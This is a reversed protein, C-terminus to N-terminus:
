AGEGTTGAKHAHITIIEFYPARRERCTVECRSVTLGAGTLMEGLEEPEFGLQLHDYQAVADEHRHTKLSSGALVGGPRLVRAAEHVVRAPDTAYMVANMLAVQDFRDDDFPLAHMDGMTVEVNKLHALRRHAADVVKESVDVCTVSRASPAILEAFVGDGSAIDLVHGFQAFGLM